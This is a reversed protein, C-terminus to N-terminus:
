GRIVEDAQMVCNIYWLPLESPKTRHISGRTTERSSNRKVAVGIGLAALRATEMEGPM